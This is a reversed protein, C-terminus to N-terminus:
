YKPPPLNRYRLPVSLASEFLRFIPAEELGIAAHKELVQWDAKMCRFYANTFPEGSLVYDILATLKNLTTGSLSKTHGGDEWFTLKEFRYLNSQYGHWRCRKATNQFHTQAKYSFIQRGM